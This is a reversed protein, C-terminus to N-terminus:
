TIRDASRGRLCYALMLAFFTGGTSYLIQPSICAYSTYLCGTLVLAPRFRDEVQKIVHCVIHSGIMFFCLGFIGLDMWVGFTGLDGAAFYLNGTLSKVDAQVSPIGAGWLYDQQIFYRTIEYEDARISGSTDGAFLMFPNWTPELLGYIYTLTAVWLVALCVTRVTSLQFRAIWLASIVVTCAIYVRSLTLGIALGCM